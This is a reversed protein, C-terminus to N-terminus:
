IIKNSYGIYNFPTLKMLEDVESNKKELENQYQLIESDKILFLDDHDKKM